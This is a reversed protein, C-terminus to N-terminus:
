SYSCWAVQSVKTNRERSKLANKSGSEEEEEKERGKKGNGAAM